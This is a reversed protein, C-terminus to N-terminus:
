PSLCSWPYAPAFTYLEMNYVPPPWVKEREATKSVKKLIYYFPLSLVTLVYPLSAKISM